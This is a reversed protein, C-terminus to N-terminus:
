AHIWDGSFFSHLTETIANLYGDEDDQTWFMVHDVNPSYCKLFVNRTCLPM